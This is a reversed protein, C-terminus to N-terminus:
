TRGRQVEYYLDGASGFLNLREDSPRQVVKLLNGNAARYATGAAWTPSGVLTMDNRFRSRDKAVAGAGDDFDYCALVRPDQPLPWQAFSHDLLVSLMTPNGESIRQGRLAMLMWGDLEGDFHTGATVGPTSPDWEVGFYWDTAASQIPQTDAALGSVPTGSVAGDVYLTFTGV